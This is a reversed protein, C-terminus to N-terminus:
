SSAVAHTKVAQGVTALIEEPSVNSKIFFRFANYLQAQEMNTVSGANTLVIVPITKMTNDAALRRLVEHGDMVPMTIDLIIAEPRNNGVITLAEEGNSATLVDYGEGILLEQYFERLYQEDDVVLVKHKPPLVAPTTEQKKLFDLVGM